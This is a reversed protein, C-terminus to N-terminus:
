ETGLGKLYDIFKNDKISPIRGLIKEVTGEHFANSLYIHLPVWSTMEPPIYGKFEFPVDRKQGWFIDMLQRELKPPLHYLKLIEADIALLTQYAKSKDSQLEGLYRNVLSSITQDQQLLTEIKPIPIAEYVKVLLNRDSIHCYVFAQAVPSNLLAALTHVSLTGTRPWVAYFSRGVVRGEIDIAAAFRWPGRSMRGVPLVIKPLNWAYKYAANEMHQEKMSMYVTDNAIYQHFGETVNFIGKQSDPFKHTQVLKTESIDKKYRIGTRFIAAERIRSFSNLWDWVEKLLPVVLKREQTGKFYSQFIKERWTYGSRAKFNDRQADRVETYVFCNAKRPERKKGSVIATEADSYLFIKDPLATIANIEFNNLLLEREKKYATSDLFSRPLVLGILAGEPLNPLARKLFELPKPLTKNNIKIKEFPPNAVLIMSKKSADEIVKDTFADAQAIEWGNSEPFDALMLCMRAVEISFPDIEIGRLNKTFFEHRQRGGFNQPLLDRMRRMAAILLIGHGCMPDLTQWQTRPLDELPVQSLLYNAIYAPTSHIGLEKRTKDSVFTNEYIYTLTDVSINKLSFSQGIEASIYDLTSSPLNEVTALLSHGYHSSVAKVATQYNSFDINASGPVDRDKLLKAALLSFVVRFIISSESAGFTWKRKRFEEQVHHLVISLLGDIKKAAEHELAPLLGIDVFDLQLPDPKAFGAKARIIARPNWADQNKIIINHLTDTKHKDQLHPEKETITWRETVGNNIIFIMPAGFAKLENVVLESPRGPEALQIGFCASRYDLPEQGFVARGVTRLPVGPSGTSFLDAFQYDRKILNRKYGIDVFAEEINALVTKIM